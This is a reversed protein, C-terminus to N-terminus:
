KIGKKVAWTVTQYMNLGGVVRIKKIKGERELEEIRYRVTRYTTIDKIGRWIDSITYDYENNTNLFEIIKKDFFDSRKLNTM